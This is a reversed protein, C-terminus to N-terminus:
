ETVEVKGVTNGYSDRPSGQNGIGRLVFRQALDRLVAAVELAADDQFAENDTNITITINM